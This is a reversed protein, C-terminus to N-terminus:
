AAAYSCIEHPPVRHHDIHSIVPYRIMMMTTNLFVTFGM